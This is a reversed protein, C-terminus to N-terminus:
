RRKGLKAKLETRMDDLGRRIATRLVSARSPEDLEAVKAALEAVEDALALLEPELRVVVQATKGVVIRGIANLPICQL